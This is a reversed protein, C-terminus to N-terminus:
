FNTLHILLILALGAVVAAGLGCLVPRISRDPAPTRQHAWAKVIRPTVDAVPEKPAASVELPPLLVRPATSALDSMLTLCIRRVEPGGRALRQEDINGGNALSEAVLDEAIRRAAARGARQIPDLPPLTPRPSQPQRAM